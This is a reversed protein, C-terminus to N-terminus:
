ALSRALLKWEAILQHIFQEGLRKVEDDSLIEGGPTKLVPEAHSGSLRLHLEALAIVPAAFVLSSGPLPVPVGLLGAAMISRAYGVGYRASLQDYKAQAYAKAKAYVKAPLAKARGALTAAHQDAAGAPCPGPVGSGVGGCFSEAYSAFDVGAAQLEDWEPASIPIMSCRCNWIRDGRVVGFPVSSPYYNDFQPEHDEGQRGDLIGVYQYAPFADIVDPDQLERSAGENFSQMAATRFILESRGRDTPGVGAADLVGDATVAAGGALADDVARRVRDLLSADTADAAAFADADIRDAFAAPDRVLGPVVVRFAAVAAAPAMPKLPKDAFASFDTADEAFQRVGERHKALRLRIRSAGLLEGTANTAALSDALTMLEDDNYLHTAKAVRRPRALLRTVASRTVDELVAAGERVAVHLLQGAQQGDKGALAVDHGLKPPSTPGGAKPDPGGDPPPLDDAFGGGPPPGAAGPGAQPKLPAGPLIDEPAAPLKWGSRESVEEKSLPQGMDHALKAVEMEALTQAPDIGGLKVAEPYDAGAFNEDVWRRAAVTLLAGIDAALEWEALEAIGRQTNTNGRGGTTQGEQIQLHAGAVAILMQRDLDDIAAKFAAESGAAMNVVQLEVGPPVTIFGAGRAKELAALMAAQLEEGVGKAVLMGGQLKDLFSIRLFSVAQKQTYALYAARLDSTGFLDGYLAFFTYYLFWDAPYVEGWGAGPTAGGTTDRVGTLNGFEDVVPQYTGPRKAKCCALMRRGRWQGRTEVQPALAFDCLSYGEIFAPIGVNYVIAKLGIQGPGGSLGFLAARYCDAIMKDRPSKSAPVVTLDLSAVSRCRTLLASKIGGESAAMHPYERRQEATEAHGAAGLFGLYGSLGGGFGVSGGGWRSRIHEGAGASPGAPLAAPPSVPAAAKPPRRKAPPAPPRPRAM